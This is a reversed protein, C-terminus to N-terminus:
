KIHYKKMIRWKIAIYFISMGSLLSISFIWQEAETRASFHIVLIGVILQFVAYISSIVLKNLGAENVLFQFLFSRHPETINEKRKIRRVITWVNEVGYVSLFLIFIPNLTHYILISLCFLVIYAMSISGVDGAFCKARDRFNFFLFVVAAIFTYYILNPDILHLKYNAYGMLTLVVVSNLGTMGNIGDMFNYANMTGVVVVLAALPIWVPLNFAGIQYFLLLTAIFQALLRLRKSMGKLDDMFSVVSLITLGLFFLPYNFGSLLFYLLTAIYFIVGGGLLTIKSHSSRENPADIIRYKFAIKFYFVEILFLLIAVIVLEM